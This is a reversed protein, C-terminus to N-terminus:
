HLLHQMCQLVLLQRCAIQRQRVVVAVISTTLFCKQQHTKRSKKKERFLWRHLLSVTVKESGRRKLCIDLCALLLSGGIMM